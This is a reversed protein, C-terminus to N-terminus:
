RSWKLPLKDRRAYPYKALKKTSYYTDLGSICITGTKEFDISGDDSIINKKLIIKIIEGVLLITNNSFIKIEEKFELAIKIESEKVFPIPFGDIYESDINCKEFESEDIKFKASTMHSREIMKDNVSNITYLKSSMINSYTHRPITNPRTIIGLLPPNSGLHVLSSFIALNETKDQSITGVLNGPKYGTISNILNLRSIKNLNKIDERTIYKM